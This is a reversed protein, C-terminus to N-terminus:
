ETVANDFLQPTDVSGTAMKDSTVAHDKIQATDIGANKVSLKAPSGTLQLTVADVVTGKLNPGDIVLTNLTGDPKLVIAMAKEIKKWNDNLAKGIASPDQTGAGPNENLLWMGLDFVPTGVRAM